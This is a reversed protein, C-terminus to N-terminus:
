NKVEEALSRVVLRLDHIATVRVWDGIEAPGDESIAQWLAGEVFVM